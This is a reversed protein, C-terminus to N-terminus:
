GAALMGDGKRSKQCGVSTKVQLQSRRRHVRCAQRRDVPLLTARDDRIQQEEVDFSREGHLLSGADTRGGVWRHVAM